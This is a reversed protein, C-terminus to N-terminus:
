TLAANDKPPNCIIRLTPPLRFFLALPAEWLNATQRTFLRMARGRSQKSTQLRRPRMKCDKRGLLNSCGPTPARLLTYM